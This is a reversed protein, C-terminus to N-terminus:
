DGRTSSHWCSKQNQTKHHSITTIKRSVRLSIQHNIIEQIFIIILEIRTHQNEKQISESKSMFDTGNNMQSTHLHKGPSWPRPLTSIGFVSKSFLSELIQNKIYCQPFLILTINNNVFASLWFCQTSSNLLYLRVNEITFSSLFRLLLGEKSVVFFVLDKRSIFFSILTRYFFSFFKWSIFHSFTYVGFFLPYVCFLILIAKM